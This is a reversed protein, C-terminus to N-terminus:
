EKRSGASAQSKAQQRQSAVREVDSLLFIRQGSPLREAPLIGSQELQRVRSASIGLRLATDTVGLFSTSM